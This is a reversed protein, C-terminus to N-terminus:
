GCRYIPFPGTLRKLGEFHATNKASYISRIIYSVFTYAVKSHVGFLLYPALEFRMSSGFQAYNGLEIPIKGDSNFKRGIFFM